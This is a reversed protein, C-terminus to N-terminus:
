LVQRIQHHELQYGVIEKHFGEYWWVKRRRQWKRCVVIDEDIFRVTWRAGVYFFKAGPKIWGPLKTEEDETM